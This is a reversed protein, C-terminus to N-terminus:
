RLGILVPHTSLYEFLAAAAYRHGAVSWHADCTWVASLGSNQEQTAISPALDIYTFGDAQALDSFHSHLSDKTAETGHSTSWSAFILNAHSDKVENIFAPIIKAETTWLLGNDAAENPAQVIQSGFPSGHLLASLSQRFMQYKGYLNVILHSYRAINKIRGFMSESPRSYAITVNGSIDYRLPHATDSVNRALDYETALDLVLDPKLPLGFRAFYLLDLYTGNGSFGIPVVEYEFRRNPLSNLEDQLRTTFMDEVPVQLGEVFSSGVVVIRFVGKKKAHMVPPGHFGMNNISVSNEFCTGGSTFIKNPSYTLLGSEQDEVINSNSQSDTLRLVGEMLVLAAIIGLLIAGFATLRRRM